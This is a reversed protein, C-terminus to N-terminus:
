LLLEFTTLFESTSGKNQLGLAKLFTYAYLSLAHDNDPPLAERVMFTAQQRTDSSVLRQKCVTIIDGPVSEKFSIGDEELSMVAMRPQAM